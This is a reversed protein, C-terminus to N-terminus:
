NFDETPSTTTPITPTTPTTPTTTTTTTTITSTTTTSTSTKTTTNVTTNNNNNNNNNYTSNNNNNDNIISSHSISAHTEIFKDSSNTAMKINDNTQDNDLWTTTNATSKQKISNLLNKKEDYKGCEIIRDRYVAHLKESSGLNSLVLSLANASQDHNTTSSSAPLQKPWGKEKKWFTNQQWPALRNVSDLQKQRKKIFFTLRMDNSEWTFDNTSYPDEDWMDFGDDCCTSSLDSAVSDADDENRYNAKRPGLYEYDLSYDSEAGDDDENDEQLLQDDQNTEVIDFATTTENLYKQQQNDEDYFM